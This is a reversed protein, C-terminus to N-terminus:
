SLYGVSVMLLYVSARQTNQVYRQKIYHRAAATTQSVNAPTKGVNSQNVTLFFIDTVDM